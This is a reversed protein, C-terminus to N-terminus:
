DSIESGAWENLALEDLYTDYTTLDPRIPGVRGGIPRWGPSDVLEGLQKRAALAAAKRDKAEITVTKKYTQVPAVNVCVPVKFKPMADM